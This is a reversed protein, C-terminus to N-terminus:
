SNMCFIELNKVPIDERLREELSPGIERYLKLIYVSKEKCTSRFFYIVNM